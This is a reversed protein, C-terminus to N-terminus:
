MTWAQTIDGAERPERKDLYQFIWTHSSLIQLVSDSLVWNQM